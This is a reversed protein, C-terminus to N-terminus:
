YRVTIQTSIFMCRNSLATILILRRETDSKEGDAARAVGKGGGGPREGDDEWGHEDSGVVLM